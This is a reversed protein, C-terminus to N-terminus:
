EANPRGLDTLIWDVAAVIDPATHDPQVPWQYKGDLVDQGYGTTVLVGKAGCKQALEVDTSKDGVVYSKGKDFDPHEQLALQVLGPEPKRCACICAYPSVTGEPLHPCYYVADLRAGQTELLSVLRLNLQKIHEEDYYGRAAGSQNTVLVAAVGADNLRRVAEAAGRILELKSVDKIYGIEENLTGDRDLFVVPRLASPM